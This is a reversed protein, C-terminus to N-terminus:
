CLGCMVGTASALWTGFPVGWSTHWWVNRGRGGLSRLLQLPRCRLSGSTALKLPPEVARVACGWCSVAAASLFAQEVAGVQSPRNTADSSHHLAAECSADSAESLTPSTRQLGAMGPRHRDLWRQVANEVAVCPCHGVYAVLCASHQTVAAMVSDALGKSVVLGKCRSWCMGPKAGGQIGM